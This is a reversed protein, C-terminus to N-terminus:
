SGAGCTCAALAAAVEDVRARAALADTVRVSDAVAVFGLVEGDDTTVTGALGHVGSLTGTKARVSGLGDSPGTEFRYTLSGTFGAVPLGTLVPRLEAHDDSTSVQVVALLTEPSLRNGRALGSGDLIRDGSTDVGLATLTEKVADSAGVFSGPRGSTLAVHRFLVEAAENDSVELVHEVVEALPAGEVAAIEESGGAAVRARPPGVVSVNRRELAEAFARAAAEAPDASRVVTESERGEDVWLPTVPSVVDDTLYSPRWDPSAAPGEFLTSDYGLRVRTRGRDRLAKATARALTQVDARAPYVEEATVPQRALLPDGGGVLVIRRASGASVVSTRFRHDGGMTALAATTTLLKMTSAPVVRDEGHRYVVQGTSLDSVAVAVSPGLRRDRLLGAVARRVAAPAAAADDRPAAAVPEPAEADPLTLGEPPPVAAPQTVPSPYDFGFWRPGLDFSWAAVAALHVLVVLTATTRRMRRGAPRPQHAASRAPADGAHGTDSEPV